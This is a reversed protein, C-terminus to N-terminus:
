IRDREDRGGKVIEGFPPVKMIHLSASLRLGFLYAPNIFVELVQYGHRSTGYKRENRIEREYVELARVALKLGGEAPHGKGQDQKHQQGM